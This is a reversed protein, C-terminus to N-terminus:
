SFQGRIEPTSYEDIPRQVGPDAIVNALDFSEVVNEQQLRARKHNRSPCAAEGEEQDVATEEEEEQALIWAIEEAEDM